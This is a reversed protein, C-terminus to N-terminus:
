IESTIRQSLYIGIQDWTYQQMNKGSVQASQWSVTEDLGKELGWLPEWGLKSRAKSSDLRLTNSEHWTSRGEFRIELKDDLKKRVYRSIWGVSKESDPSPGFNWATSYKEPFECLKQGLLLYGFLPELVHQWPRIADPSRLDIARKGAYARMLDPVLRNEAWDGGGIVNGARATAVGVELQRFFSKYYSATILESCAKSSSYPDNGGLADSERYPWCWEKNNYCKDTTINVIAKASGVRRLSELLNVTGMINTEYNEIPCEYSAVVLPQAALHFVIQPQEEEVFQCLSELNRVDSVASKSIRDGVRAVEFLNPETPPALAYGTVNAGLQALMLSLWSGKFGTHGTVLVKKNAYYSYM